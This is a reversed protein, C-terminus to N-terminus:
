GNPTEPALNARQRPMGLGTDPALGAVPQDAQIMHMSRWNGFRYYAAALVLSTVSGAAFSWWLADAGMVSRFVYAFTTRVLLVSIVLIILPPMVAGTARVTAFLVITIGFLIFSWSAVNNIHVAIDIAASDGVLFLGLVPRDFFYLVAVLVGTMVMNYGVGSATIRSIRDWRGAGVNQAAISSVAAGIALAPMQIYTWLQAAIGYAAATQSGYGNVLGMVTLASASIVIMQLGMPVGKFVVIRLLAPDPRLLALDAGALRLPHKRAYLIILIALASVTQGVLTAMASGAIGLEPFPGIGLILLPNLIIDLVVAIAMFVFPTRSDGAGRLVTMVFSLLNMVPVALFIIRLYSRALPLADAPTGLLNLIADVWIWGCVAFLISIAFFFTASTGVVRKAAPLDRAGVSQAVLITAAMGIGFLTGLIMFLVLNANSTAALASEGLFRGVWVANISGNLSQLVNAGLVPLAFILLTRSIPGTTLDGTARYKRPKDDM